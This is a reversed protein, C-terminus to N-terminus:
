AVPDIEAALVQRRREQRRRTREGIREKVMARFSWRVLLLIVCAFALTGLGSWALFDRLSNVDRFGFLFVTTQGVGALACAATIARRAKEDSPLKGRMTTFLVFASFIIVPLTIALAVLIIKSTPWTELKAPEFLFIALSGTGVTTAVLAGLFFIRSDSIKNLDLTVM